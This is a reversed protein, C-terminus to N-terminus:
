EETLPHKIKYNERDLIIQEGLGAKINIVIPAKLNVTIEEVKSNVTVVNMLSVETADKIRLREILNDNLKIEYDKKVEFPSVVVLGVNEDEISHLVSFINNEELPFLIFQKLSEFGPVGKAFSIIDEEKYDKIGHFKTNIKV